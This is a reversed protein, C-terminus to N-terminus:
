SVEVIGDGDCRTCRAWHDSTRRQHADTLQRDFEAEMAAWFEEPQRELADREKLLLGLLAENDDFRVEWSFCGGDLLHCKSPKSLAGKRDVAWASHYNLYPARWTDRDAGLGRADWDAITVPLYFPTWVRLELAGEATKVSFFWNECSNGHSPVNPEQGAYKGKCSPCSKNDLHCAFADHKNTGRIITM